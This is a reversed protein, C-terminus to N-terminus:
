KTVIVASSPSSEFVIVTIILTISTFSVTRLAPNTGTASRVGSTRSAITAAAGFTVSAASTVSDWTAAIVLRLRRLLPMVDRLVPSKEPIVDRDFRLRNPFWSLLRGAPVKSPSVARDVSRRPLLATSGIGSITESCCVPLLVKLAIMGTPAGNLTTNGIRTTLPLMLPPM